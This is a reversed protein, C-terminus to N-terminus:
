RIYQHRSAPAWRRGRILISRIGGVPHGDTAKQTQPPDLLAPKTWRYSRGQPAVVAASRRRAPRSALDSRRAVQPERGTPLTPGFCTARLSADLINLRRCMFSQSSPSLVSMLRLARNISSTLAAIFPPSLSRRAVSRSIVEAILCTSISLRASPSRRSSPSASTSATSSFISFCRRSEIWCNSAAPRWSRASLSFASTTTMSSYMGARSDSASRSARIRSAIVSVPAVVARSMPLTMAAIFALAAPRASM